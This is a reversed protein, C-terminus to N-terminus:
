SIHPGIGCHKKLLKDGEKIAEEFEAKLSDPMDPHDSLYSKAEENLNYLKMCLLLKEFAGLFFSMARASIIPPQKQSEEFLLREKIAKKLAKVRKVAEKKTLSKDKVSKKKKTKM